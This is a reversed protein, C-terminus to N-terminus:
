RAACLVYMYVEDRLVYHGHIFRMKCCMTCTNLVEDRLVYYMCIFRMECCMTCTYVEDRLVYYM